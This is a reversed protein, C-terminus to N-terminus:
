CKQPTFGLQYVSHDVNDHNNVIRIIANHTALIQNTPYNYLSHRFQLYSIEPSIFLTKQLLPYLEKLTFFFARRGKDEQNFGLTGTQYPRIREILSQNDQRIDLCILFFDIIAQHLIDNAQPEKNIPDTM